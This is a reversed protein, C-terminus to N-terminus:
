TPTSNTRAHSTNFNGRLNPTNRTTLRAQHISGSKKMMAVAVKRTTTPCATAGM